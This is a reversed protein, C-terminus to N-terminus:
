LWIEQAHEAKAPAPRISIYPVKVYWVVRFDDM